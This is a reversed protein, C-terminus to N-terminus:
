ILQGVCVGGMGLRFDCEYEGLHLVRCGSGVSCCAVGELVEDAVIM